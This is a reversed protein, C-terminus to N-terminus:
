RFQEIFLFDLSTHRKSTSVLSVFANSLSPAGRIIEDWMVFDHFGNWEEPRIGAVIQYHSFQHPISSGCAMPVLFGDRGFKQYLSDPISGQKEFEEVNTAVKQYL